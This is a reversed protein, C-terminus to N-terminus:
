QSVQLSFLKKSSTGTASTSSKIQLHAHLLVPPRAPHELSAIGQHHREPPAAELRERHVAELVAVAPVAHELVRRLVHVAECAEVTLPVSRIVLNKRM